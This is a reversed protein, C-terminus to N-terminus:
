YYGKDNHGLIIEYSHLLRGPSFILATNALTLRFASMECAHPCGAYNHSFQLYCSHQFGQQLPCRSIEHVSPNIVEGDVGGRVVSRVYM